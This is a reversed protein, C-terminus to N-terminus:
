CRALCNDHRIVELEILHPTLLFVIIVSSWRQLLLGFPRELVLCVVCCVAVVSSQLKNVCKVTLNVCM